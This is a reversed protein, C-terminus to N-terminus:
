PTVILRARGILQGHATVVDVSWVGAPDQGLDAKRSYTRFGGPRGGRIPSLAIRTVEAGNKWWVHYIPERLGAPAAVATFAVIGGWTRLEDATVTSVPEAPELRVVSRTFTARTLHLPVPPIWGRLPWLVLGVATGWIGARILADRWSSDPGRRFVPALALMSVTGSLLLAWTSRVRLLPFAVNLSAFLGFGFLVIEVWRFRARIARYWPDITTLLAASALVILFWVNRSALTTSAYYIPLLFLLLGHFMTQIAYNVALWVVRGGRAALTQRAEAFVVGALWLLILYGVFWPFYELGRRFIFLTLLGLVVSGASIGWNGVWRLWPHRTTIGAWTDRLSDLWAATTM